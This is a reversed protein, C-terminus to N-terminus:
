LTVETRQSNQTKASAQAKGRTHVPAARWSCRASKEKPPKENCLMPKETITTGPSQLVPEASPAWLSLPEMAHLIKGSSPESRFTRSLCIELRFHKFIKTVPKMCSMKYSTNSIWHIKIVWANIKMYEYTKM